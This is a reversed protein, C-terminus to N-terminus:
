KLKDLKDWMKNLTKNINDVNQEYRASRDAMGKYDAQLAKIDGQTSCQNAELNSVRGPLPILSIIVGGIVLIATGILIQTMSTSRRETM